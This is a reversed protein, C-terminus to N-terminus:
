RSPTRVDLHRAMTPAPPRSVRHAHQRRIVNFASGAGFWTMQEPSFSRLCSFTRTTGDPKLLGCRVAGHPVLSALDFVSIRDDEEIEDYTAPDAFVLPM